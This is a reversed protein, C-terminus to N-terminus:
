GARVVPVFLLTAQVRRLPSPMLGSFAPARTRVARQFAELGAVSAAVPEDFPRQLNLLERGSPDVLAITDWDPEVAAIRAAQTYFRRLDGEDLQNATALGELLQTSADLRRDLAISMARVRELFRDEFAQRQQRWFILTMVSAFALVPLLSLAVLAVLRTRIKM